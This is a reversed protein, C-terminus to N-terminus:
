RGNVEPLSAAAVAQGVRRDKEGPVHLQVADAMEPFEAALVERAKELVLEGGAGTTVRGLVLLHKFDYFDAYHPITYGLYVGITEYIKRANPDDAAMLRQIEKLREPVSMDPPLQIRAARLLHNVALQSFYSAGVGYDGSWEDVAANLNYDVPAFALESLWGTMRGHPDLYGAAQSSGMAIGLVANAKLAMGGALATVDGDNAVALPVNWERGLRLFMNQAEDYRGKPVARFLSAVMIKNDVIVGASSGGIADVRPLHTAAKKLAWNLREYHYQPDPQERPNWTFEETYIAEGDRVAAVKYDSAGLDFGLRCGDLHGGLAATSERAAPVEDGTTVTVQFPRGYVQSMLGVDFSRSGIKSFSLALHDGIGRPGGFWIRWGGRAWLLFKVLRVVYRLTETDAKGKVVTEFRSFLGNERELGIVVPVAEGSELAEARYKRHLLVAPQFELDLPALIRTSLRQGSGAMGEDPIAVEMGQGHMERLYFKTIPDSM